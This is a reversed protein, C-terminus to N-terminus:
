NFIFYIVWLLIVLVSGFIVSIIATNRTYWSKLNTPTKINCLFPLLVCGVIIVVTLFLNVLM